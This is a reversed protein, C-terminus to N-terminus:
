QDNQQRKLAVLLRLFEDKRVWKEADDFDDNSKRPFTKTGSPLKVQKINVRVGYDCHQAIAKGDFACAYSIPMFSYGDYM